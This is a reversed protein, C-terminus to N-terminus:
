AARQWHGSKAGGRRGPIPGGKVDAALIKAESTTQLLRVREEQAFLGHITATVDNVRGTGLPGAVHIEVGLNRMEDHIELLKLLNRSLRSLDYVLLYKFAGTRALERLERLGKRKLVYAGSQEKDCFRHREPHPLLGLRGAYTATSQDQQKISTEKQKRTSYRSYSVWFENEVNVQPFGVDRSRADLETALRILDADSAPPKSRTM